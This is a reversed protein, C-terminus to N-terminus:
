LRMASFVDALGIAIEKLRKSDVERTLSMRAKVTLMSKDVRSSCSLWGKNRLMGEANSGLTLLRKGLVERSEAEGRMKTYELSLELRDKFEFIKIVASITGDPSGLAVSFDDKDYRLCSEDYIELSVERLFLPGLVEYVGENILKYVGLLGEKINSFPIRNSQIDQTAKVVLDAIYHKTAPTLMTHKESLGSKMSEFFDLFKHHNPRPNQGTVCFFMLMGFGFSDVLTSKTSVNGNKGAVTQEPAAYGQATAGRVVSFEQAGRYWSLDFDLLAVDINDPDSYFNRLMVNDPKIDRHLVCEKLSHGSEIIECARLLIYFIEKSSLQQREIIESLTVGEVYEMVITSPIEIADYIDVMGSVNNKTLIRMSEVGRKFAALSENDHVVEQLLVKLAVTRNEIEDYAKYVTGFAGRGIYEDVRYQLLNKCSGNPNVLWAMHVDIDNNNIYEMLEKNRQEPDKETSVISVARRNIELRKINLDKCQGCLRSFVEDYQAGEEGSFVPGSYLDDPEYDVLFGVFRDVQLHRGGTNKYRIVTFGLESLEMEFALSPNDLLVFKNSIIEERSIIEDVLYRFARDDPNFGVFFCTKSLFVSQIFGSSSSRLWKNRDQNSLVWSENDCIEGHVHYIFDNGEQLARRAKVTDKWSMVKAAKGNVRSYSNAALEDLNFNLFGSFGLSMLKEYRSSDFDKIVGGDVSLHKVIARQYIDPPLVRRIADAVRWLDDGVKINKVEIEKLKKEEGHLTEIYSECRALLAEILKGWTPAGYAASLGAGCVLVCDRNSKKLRNALALANEDDYFEM